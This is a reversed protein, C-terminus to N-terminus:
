TETEEVIKPIETKIYNCWDYYSWHDQIDQTSEVLTKLQSVADVGEEFRFSDIWAELSNVNVLEYVARSIAKYRGLEKRLHENEQKLLQELLNNPIPKSHNQLPM